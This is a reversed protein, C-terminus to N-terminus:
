QDEGGASGSQVCCICVLTVAVGRIAPTSTHPTHHISCLRFVSRDNAFYGPCSDDIVLALHQLGRGHMQVLRTKKVADLAERSGMPVVKGWLPCVDVGKEVIERGV